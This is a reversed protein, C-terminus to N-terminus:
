KKLLIAPQDYPQVTVTLSQRADFVDKTVPFSFIVTGIGSAGRAVQTDQLIPPKSNEKLQPFAQYYRDYDSANAADDTFEGKTTDVAAKVSRIYLTNDTANKFHVTVAVMTMDGPIAVASIQDISGTAPPKARNFYGVFAVAVGVIVLAIVVPQWKPMTWKARDFEEGMRIHAPDYDDPRNLRRAAANPAGSTAPAATPQESPTPQAASSPQPTIPSDNEPM